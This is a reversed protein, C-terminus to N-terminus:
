YLLQKYIFDNVALLIHSKKFHVKQDNFMVTELLSRM